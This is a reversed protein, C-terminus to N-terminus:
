AWRCRSYARSREAGVRTDGSNKSSSPADAGVFPGFWGFHQKAEEVTKSVVPVNLWKGIVEAIDRFRMGEEAVAHYQVGTPNKELARRYVVAADLRHVGPWRNLGESVYASM